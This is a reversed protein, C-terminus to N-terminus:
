DEVTPQDSQSFRDLTAEIQAQRTGGAHAMTILLLLLLIITTRRIM